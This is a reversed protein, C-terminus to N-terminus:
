VQAIVATALGLALLRAYSLIDSLYGTSDYLSSLGGTIKGFGKNKRGGTLLLMAAGAILMYMGPKVIAQSVSGGALWMAAGLIVLYWSGVDCIADIWKGEKILMAANLGMGLFLHIVGFI